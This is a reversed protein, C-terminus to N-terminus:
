TVAPLTFYPAPRAHFMPVGGVKGGGLGEGVFGSDRGGSSKESLLYRIRRDNKRDKTDISFSASVDSDSGSDSRSFTRRTHTHEYRGYWVM